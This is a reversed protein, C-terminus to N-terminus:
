AQATLQLLHPADFHAEVTRQRGGTDAMAAVVRHDHAQHAFPWVGNVWRLDGRADGCQAFCVGQQEVAPEFDTEDPGAVHPQEVLVQRVMGVGHGQDGFTSRALQVTIGIVRHPAAEDDICGLSCAADKVSVVGYQRVIEVASHLQKFQALFVVQAHRM